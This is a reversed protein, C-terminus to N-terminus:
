RRRSCVHAKPAADGGGFAVTMLTGILIPMGLWVALGPLDALRRRLDKGASVLVFSM